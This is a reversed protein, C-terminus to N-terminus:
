IKFSMYIWFKNLNVLLKLYNEWINLSHSPAERKLQKQWIYIPLAKCSRLSLGELCKDFYYFIAGKFEWTTWFYQYNAKWKNTYEFNRELYEIYVKNKQIVARQTGGRLVEGWKFYRNNKIRTFLKRISRSCQQFAIFDPFIVALCINTEFPGYFIQHLFSIPRSAALTTTLYSSHMKRPKYNWNIELISRSRYMNHM